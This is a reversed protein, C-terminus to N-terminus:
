FEANFYRKNIVFIKLDDVSVVLEVEKRKHEEPEERSEGDPKSACGPAFVKGGVM